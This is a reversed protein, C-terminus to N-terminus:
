LKEHEENWHAEFDKVIENERWNTNDKIVRFNVEMFGYYGCFHSCEDCDQYHGNKEFHHAEGIICRDPKGIDLDYEKKLESAKRIWGKSVLDFVKSWMPSIDDITKASM